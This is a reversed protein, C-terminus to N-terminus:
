GAAPGDSHLRELWAPLQEMREFVGIAGADRLHAAPTTAAFGLVRMHAAVGAMVGAPSDEVVVCAAPSVGLMQAAHLYIDPAPKGHAVDDVCFWRGAFRPLLGTAQLTVRMKEGIGNSAIAAPYALGALMTEVGPILVVERALATRSREGYRQNFGAPLPHGLLAEAQQLVASAAHGFFHEEMYATTLPLGQDALMERLVRNTIHESDVLVGDCDFIVLSIDIVDAAM